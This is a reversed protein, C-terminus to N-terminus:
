RHRSYKLYLYDAHTLVHDLRMRRPSTLAAAGHGIDQVGALTPSVTVCIEDVVDAAVLEDLLTPGGECLIRNLGRERFRAVVESM